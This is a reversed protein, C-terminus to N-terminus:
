DLKALKSISFVISDVSEAIKGTINSLGYTLVVCSHKAIESVAVFFSDLRIQDGLSSYKLGREIRSVQSHIYTRIKGGTQEYVM